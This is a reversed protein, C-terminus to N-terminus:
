HNIGIFSKLFYLHEQRMGLLKTWIQDVDINNLLLVPSLLTCGPGAGGTLPVFLQFFTLSAHKLEVELSGQPPCEGSRKGWMGKVLISFSQRPYGIRVQTSNVDYASSIQQVEKGKQGSWCSATIRISHKHGTPGFGVRHATGLNLCCLPVSTAGAALWNPGWQETM